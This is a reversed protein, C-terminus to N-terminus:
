LQVDIHKGINVLLEPSFVDPRPPAPLPASRLIELALADQSSASGDCAGLTVEVVQGATSQRVRVVCSARPPSDDQELKGAFYAELSERYVERLRRVESEASSSTIATAIAGPQPLVEGITVAEMRLEPLKQNLTIRLKKIAASTNNVSGGAFAPPSAAEILFAHVLRTDGSGGSRQSLSGARPCLESALVLILFSHVLVVVGVALGREGMLRGWPRATPSLSTAMRSAGIPRQAEFVSLEIARSGLPPEREAIFGIPTRRVSARGSLTVQLTM